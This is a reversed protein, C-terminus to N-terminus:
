SAAMFGLNASNFNGLNPFILGRDTDSLGFWKSLTAAYQDVSTTPIVQGWGADDPNNTAALSPMTGYIRQGIVDGGVVLHHSGWGHDTGNRNSSLTRGFDSATFLTVDNAAAIQTSAMCDYFAKVGISLDRLLEDQDVLQTDHTDFGGLGVLFIQRQMGLAARLAIMRAVMRLQQGFWPVENVGAAAWAQQFITFPANTIPMTDLQAALAATVERTRKVKNALAREFPHAYTANQLANFTNRRRDNWDNADIPWIEEVGQAGLFYPSVSQGAQFVNEGDLSVNMSLQQNTNSAFFVDALKGGWGLRQASNAAPSQWLVQQDSHSFLQAPLSVGNDFDQKTTPRILPGVNSILAAKGSNFLSQLGTMRPHLGYQGGDSPTVTPNIALLQAQPLALNGRTTAYTNYLANSRPVLMNFADNGGYLFVCVLARYGSGLLQHPSNTSQALALKGLMSSFMASTTCATLTNRLFERRKM